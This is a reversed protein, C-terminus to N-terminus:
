IDGYNEAFTKLLKFLSAHDKVDVRYGCGAGAPQDIEFFDFSNEILDSIVGDVTEEREQDRRLDSLADDYGCWNDVGGAELASLKAEARLLEKMRAASISM